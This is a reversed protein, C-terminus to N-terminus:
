FSFFFSIKPSTFVIHFELKRTGLYLKTPVCDCENMSTNDLRSQATIPVQHGMFGLINIILGSLFPNASVQKLPLALSFGCSCTTPLISQIVVAVVM